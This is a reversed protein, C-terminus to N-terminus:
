SFTSSFEVKSSSSEFREMKVWQLQLFTIEPYNQVFKEVELSLVLLLNFSFIKCSPLVQM